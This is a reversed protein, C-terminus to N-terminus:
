YESSKMKLYLVISRDSKYKNRKNKVSVFYLNVTIRAKGSKIFFLGTLYNQKRSVKWSKFDFM